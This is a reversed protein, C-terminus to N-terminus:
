PGSLRDQHRLLSAVATQSYPRRRSHSLPTGRIVPAGGAIRRNPDSFERVLREHTWYKSFHENPGSRIALPCWSGGLRNVQLYSKQSHWIVFGVYRRECPLRQGTIKDEEQYCLFRTEWSSPDVGLSVPMTFEWQRYQPYPVQVRRARGTSGM